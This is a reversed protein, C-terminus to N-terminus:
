SGAQRGVWRSSWRGLLFRGRLANGAVVSCLELVALIRWASGLLYLFFGLKSSKSADIEKSATHPWIKPLQRCEGAEM